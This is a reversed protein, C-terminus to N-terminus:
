YHVFSSCWINEEVTNDYKKRLGKRDYESIYRQKLKCWVAIGDEHRQGPYNPDSSTLAKSADEHMCNACVQKESSM